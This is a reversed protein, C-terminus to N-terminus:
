EKENTKKGRKRGRKGWEKEYKMKTKKREEVGRERKEGSGKEGEKEVTEGEGGTERFQATSCVRSWRPSRRAEGIWTDPDPVVPAPQRLDAPLSVFM